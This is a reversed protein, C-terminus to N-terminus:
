YNVASHRFGSVRDDVGVKGYASFFDDFEVVCAMVNAYAPVSLAAPSVVGRKVLSRVTYFYNLAEQIHALRGINRLLARRGRNGRCRRHCQGGLRTGRTRTHGPIRCRGPPPRQRDARRRGRGDAFKRHQEGLEDCEQAGGGLGSTIMTRLGFDSLDLLPADRGRADICYRIAVTLTRIRSSDNLQLARHTSIHRNMRRQM